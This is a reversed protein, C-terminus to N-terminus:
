RRPAWGRWCWGRTPRLDARNGDSPIMSENFASRGVAEVIRPDRPGLREALALGNEFLFPKSFVNARLAAQAVQDYIEAPACVPSAGRDGLKGDRPRTSGSALHQIAASQMPFESVDFAELTALAAANQRQEAITPPRCPGPAAWAPARGGQFSQALAEEARQEAEHRAKSVGGHILWGACFGGLMLLVVM